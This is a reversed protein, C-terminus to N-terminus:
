KHFKKLHQQKESVYRDLKYEPVTISKEDKVFKYKDNDISILKMRQGDVFYSKGIQPSINDSKFETYLKLM